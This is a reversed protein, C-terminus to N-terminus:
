RVYSGLIENRFDPENTPRASGLRGSHLSIYESWLQEFDSFFFGPLNAKEINKELAEEHFFRIFGREERSFRLRTKFMVGIVISSLIAIVALITIVEDLTSIYSM